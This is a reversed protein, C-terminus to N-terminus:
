FGKALVELDEFDIRGGIRLSAHGIQENAVRHGLCLAVIRGLKEELGPHPCTLFSVADEVLQLIAVVLDQGPREDLDALDGPLRSAGPWYALTAPLLVNPSM